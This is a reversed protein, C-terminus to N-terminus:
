GAGFRGLVSRFSEQWLEEEENLAGIDSKLLRLWEPM